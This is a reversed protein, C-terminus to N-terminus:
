ADGDLSAVLSSPEDGSQFVTWLELLKEKRPNIWEIVSSDYKRDLTGVLRVAPNVSYSATHNERGYDIHIHPLKHGPEQYMKVKLPGLKVLLYELLLTKGQRSTASVLDIQALARQLEKADETLKM